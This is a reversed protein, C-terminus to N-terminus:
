LLARKSEMETVRDRLYQRTQALTQGWNGRHGVARDDIFADAQPKHTGTWVELPPFGLDILMQQIHQKNKEKESDPMPTFRATFITLRHGDQLLSNVSEIAGDTPVDVEEGGDSPAKKVLTSDLDICIWAM